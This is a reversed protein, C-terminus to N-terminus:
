LGAYAPEPSRKMLAKRLKREARRVLTSVAGSSKLDMYDAADRYSIGRGRVMVFAEKERPSLLNLLKDLEPNFTMWTSGRSPIVVKVCRKLVHPDVPVTCRYAGRHYDPMVGTDLFEITRHLDREMSALHQYDM